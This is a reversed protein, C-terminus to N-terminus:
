SPFNEMAENGCTAALCEFKHVWYADALSVDVL